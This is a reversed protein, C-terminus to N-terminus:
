SCWIFHKKRLTSDHGTVVERIPSIEFRIVSPSKAKEYGEKRRVEIQSAASYPPIDVLYGVVIPPEHTIMRKSKM